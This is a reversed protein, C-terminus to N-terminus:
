LDSQFCSLTSYLLFLTSLSMNQFIPTAFPFAVSICFTLLSILCFFLHSSSHFCFFITRYASSCLCSPSCNSCSPSTYKLLGTCTSETWCMWCKSEASQIGIVWVCWLQFECHICVAVAAANTIGWSCQPSSSPIFRSMAMTLFSPCLGPNTQWLYM